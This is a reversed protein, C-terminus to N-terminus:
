RHIGNACSNACMKGVLTTCALRVEIERDVLHKMEDVTTLLPWKLAVTAEYGKSTYEGEFM